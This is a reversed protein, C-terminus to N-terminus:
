ICRRRRARWGSTALGTPARRHHRAARARRRPQCDRRGRTSPSTWSCTSCRAERQLTCGSSRRLHVEQESKSPPASARMRLETEIGGLRADQEQAKRQMEADSRRVQSEVDVMKADMTAVANGLAGEVRVLNVQLTAGTDDTAAKLKKGLEASTDDLSDRLYRLKEDTDEAADAM